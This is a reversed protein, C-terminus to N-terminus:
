EPGGVENIDFMPIDWPRPDASSELNIQQDDSVYVTPQLSVNAGGISAVWLGDEGSGDPRKSELLTIEADSLAAALAAEDLVRSSLPGVGTQVESDPNVYTRRIVRIALMKVDYPLNSSTWTPQQAVFRIYDSVKSRVESAFQDAAVVGLDSQTWLAMENVTILDNSM